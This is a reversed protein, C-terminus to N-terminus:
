RVLRTDCRFRSVARSKGAAGGGRNLRREKQRELRWGVDGLNIVDDLGYVDAVGAVDAVLQLSGLRDTATSVLRQCTTASGRM